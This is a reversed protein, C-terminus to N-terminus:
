NGSGWVSSVVTAIAPILASLLVGVFGLIAQHRPTWGRAGDADTSDHEGQFAALGVVRRLLANGLFAGSIFLLAPM